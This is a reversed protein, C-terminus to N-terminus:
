LPAIENNPFTAPGDIPASTGSPPEVCNGTKLMMTAKDYVGTCHSPTSVFGGCKGGGMDICIHVPFSVEVNGVKDAARTIVCAPGEPLQNAADLQFGVCNAPDGPKVPPLAYIAPLMAPTYTHAYTMTTAGCLRPPATTTGTDGVESCGAVTGASFQFDPTGTGPIPAMQLSLAENQMVVPGATPILLPNVDDCYTDGDTDVALATMGDDHIVFMQVSSQDVTSIREVALGPAENGHDEIRARVYFVQPVVEGDSISDSGLPSFSASCETGGTMDKKAVRVMHAANMTMWPKVIDIVVEEGIQSLNGFKDKARVSIEALVYNKALAHVDFIGEYTNGTTPTLVIDTSNINGFEAIVSTPDVGSPDSVEVKVAFFGGVFDGAAPSSITITPGTSDFQGGDGFGVMDGKAGAMDHSGGGGTSLDDGVPVGSDFPTFPQMSQGCGAVFLLPVVLGLSKRM